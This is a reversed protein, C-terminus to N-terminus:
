LYLSLSFLCNIGIAWPGIRFWRAIRDCKKKESEHEISKALLAYALGAIMLGAASLGYSQWAAIFGAIATLIGALWVSESIGVTQTFTSIGSERDYVTDAAQHVVHYGFVYLFVAVLSLTLETTIVAGTVVAVPLVVGVVDVGTTVVHNFIGREKIRPPYSYIFGLLNSMLGIVFFFMTDTRIAIWGWLGIGALLEIILITFLLQHGISDVASAIFSKQPNDKDVSYDHIADAVSAQMKTLMVAFFLIILLDVSETLIRGGIVAGSLGIGVIFYIINYGITEPLRNVVVFNSIFDVIGHGRTENLPYKLTM